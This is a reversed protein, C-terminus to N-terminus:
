ESASLERGKAAEWEGLEWERLIVSVIQGASTGNYVDFVYESGAQVQRYGRFYYRYVFGSEASYTKERRIQPVGSLPTQRNRARRWFLVHEVYCLALAEPACLCDSAVPKRESRCGQHRAGSL